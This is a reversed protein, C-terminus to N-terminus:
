KEMQKLIREDKPNLDLALNKQIGRMGSQTHFFPNGSKSLIKPFFQTESDKGHVIENIRNEIEESINIDISKKGYASEVFNVLDERDESTLNM